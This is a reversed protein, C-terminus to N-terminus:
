IFEIQTGLYHYTCGAYFYFYGAKKNISKKLDDSSFQLFSFDAYKKVISKTTILKKRVLKKIFRAAYDLSSGLIQAIKRMGLINFDILGGDKIEPHQSVIKLSKKYSKINIKAGKTKAKILDSKIVRLKDQNSFNNKIILINIEEVISEITSKESIHIVEGRSRLPMIKNLSVLQLNKGQFNAFDFSILRKIYKDIIYESINIKESLNKPSYDYILSNTFQKKLLLILAFSKKYELSKGTLFNIDIEFGGHSKQTKNQRIEKVIGM